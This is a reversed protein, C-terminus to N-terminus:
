DCSSLNFRLSRKIKFDFNRELEEVFLSVYNKYKKGDLHKFFNFIEEETDIIYISIMEVEVPKLFDNLSKLVCHFVEENAANLKSSSLLLDIKPEEHYVLVCLELRLDNKQCFKIIKEELQRM